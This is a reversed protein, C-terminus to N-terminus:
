FRIWRDVFSYMVPIVFLTLMTSTVIGGLVAIALPHQLQNEAGAFVAMPLLGFILTVTTMLIPRFRLKGAEIISANCDMGARRRRLIFDVKVIADNAAIGALVVMGIMAVLNISTGTLALLFVAGILAMPVASLIIFPVLVSEYQSALIMYILLLSILLVWGLQGLMEGIDDQVGGIRIGVDELGLDAIQINIDEIVRDIPRGRVSGHLHLVRHQQERYVESFGVSQYYSVFEGVPLTSVPAQPSPRAENTFHLQTRLLDDISAPQYLTTRVHVPIKQDFETMETATIGRVQQTITTVLDTVTLAYAALRERDIILRYEPASLEYGPRVDVIGLIEAVARKILASAELAREIDVAADAEVAITIDWEAPRIIQEFMSEPQRFAVQVGYRQSAIERIFSEVAPQAGPNRLRIDLEARRNSHVGDNGPGTLLLEDPEGISSFVAAVTNLQAVSREIDSIHAATQEITTGPELEIEAVFHGQQVPPMFEKPIWLATFVAGGLLLLTATMVIFRHRLARVLAIEYTDHLRAIFGTTHIITKIHSHKRRRSVLMPVLSVAVLLSALLSFTIALSQDRFLRGGLGDMFILPLFVAITTLTSATIPLVVERVGTVASEKLDSLETRHRNTNELVIISNDVLMGIAVALGGLSIINISINFVYMLLLATMISSPISVGIVLPERLRGLFFFLVMFAFAGGWLLQRRVAAVASEIFAAEDYVVEIHFEPYEEHLEGIVRRVRRSVDITNAEAEKRILVGITERGNFRAISEREKFGDRVEAIERVQIARGGATTHVVTQRIDELSEFEALTRLAFRFHGSKISGGPMSINARELATAIDDIRLDLMRLKDLDIDVQIEREVGGTILSQAVGREQEFRRKIIARAVERLEYLNRHLWEADDSGSSAADAYYRSADAATLSLKMVPATSPDVHLITPRGAQEPLFARAQDLRERTRIRAINMDTGWYFHLTIVSVGERSISTIRRLDPLTSLQAELGETILQEVEEPSADPYATRIYFQPIDLRPLLDISMQRFTLLTFILIGLFLMSTTVPRDVFTRILM